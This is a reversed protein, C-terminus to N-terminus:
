QPLGPIPPEINLAPPPPESPGTPSGPLNTPAVGPAENQTPPLLDVGLPEVKEPPKVYYSRRPSYTRDYITGCGAALISLALLSATCLKRSPRSMREHLRNARQDDIRRHM